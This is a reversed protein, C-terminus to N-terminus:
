KEEIIVDEFEYVKYEDGIYEHGKYWYIPGYRNSNDYCTKDQYSYWLINKLYSQGSKWEKGLKDFAKLLKNAKEETDCHIALKEKSNWFEELTIKNNKMDVRETLRDM